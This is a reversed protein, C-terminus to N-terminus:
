MTFSPTGDNLTPNEFQVVNVSPAGAALAAKSFAYLQSGNYGNGFLGASNTLPYENTALYFGFKDAGMHPYDGVCPCGVHSPTGQTGDDQVPLQYINFGDLPNGTKSVAVDLHNDGTLGGNAPNVELTLVVHFFRNTAQDFLCSPDTPEPGFIINTRDIAPPYGYFSNQDTVASLANGKTDFVQLVDNVTELVFGNGVCMGQDPPVISFQNGNNATRQDFHNLGEFSRRLGPTGQVKMGNVNPITLGAAQARARATKATPRVSMSRNGAKTLKHAGATATRAAASADGADGSEDPEGPKIEPNQVGPVNGVRQNTPFSLTVGRPIQRVSRTVAAASATSSPAASAATTFAAVLAAVLALM